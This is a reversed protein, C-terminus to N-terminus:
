PKSQKVAANSAKSKKVEDKQMVDKQLPLIEEEQTNSFSNIQQEFDAMQKIFRDKDVMAQEEYKVKDLADLNQWTKGVEKMIQLAHMDPYKKCIESRTKRVFIMYASLAKKPRNQEIEKLLKPNGCKEAFDQVELEYRKKDLLSTLYLWLQIISTVLFVFSYAGEEAKSFFQVKKQQSMSSWEAGLEKMMM